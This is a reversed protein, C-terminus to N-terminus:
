IIYKDRVYAMLQATNKLGLKLLIHSRYTSITKVSLSLNRAIETVTDGDGLRKLVFFERDSLKKICDNSNENQYECVLMEAVKESIFKKGAILKHIAAVLDNAARGKNLYGNAGARLARLAMQEEEYISLVLIPLSPTMTKIERILELGSRGPMNIDTIIMDWDQKHVKSLAESSSEAEVFQVREFADSIIKKVGQRFISHDDIILVNNM